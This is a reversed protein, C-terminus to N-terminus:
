LVREVCFFTGYTYNYLKAFGVAGPMTLYIDVYDGKNLFMLCSATYTVIFLREQYSFKSHNAGNKRIYAVESTDSDIYLQSDIYYYGSEVATFRYTTSDYRSLIDFVEINFPVVGTFPGDIDSTINTRVRDFKTVFPTNFFPKSDLLNLITEGDQDIYVDLVRTKNNNTYYGNKEISYTGRNTGSSFSTLGNDTFEIYTDNANDLQFTYDGDAQYRNGNCEWISGDKVTVTAPTTTYNVSFKFDQDGLREYDVNLGMLTLDKDTKFTGINKISM